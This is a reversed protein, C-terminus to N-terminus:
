NWCMYTDIVKKMVGSFNFAIKQIELYANWKGLSLIHCSWFQYPVSLRQYTTFTTLLLLGKPKFDAFETPHWSRSLNTTTWNVTMTLTLRAILFFFCERNTMCYNKHAFKLLNSIKMGGSCKSNKTLWHNDWWTWFTRWSSRRSTVMRTAILSKSHKRGVRFHM